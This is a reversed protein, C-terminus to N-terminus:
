AANDEIDQNDTNANTSDGTPPTATPQPSEEPLEPLPQTSPDIATIRESLNSLTANLDRITMDKEADREKWDALENQMKTITANMNAITADQAKITRALDGRERKLEKIEQQANRKYAEFERNITNIDSVYGNKEIRWIEQEKELEAIRKTHNTIEQNLTDIQLQLSRKDELAQDRETTIRKITDILSSREAQWAKREADFATQMTDLKVELRQVREEASDKVKIIESALKAEHQQQERQIEARINSNKSTNYATLSGIAIVLGVLGYAQTFAVIDFEIQALTTLLM